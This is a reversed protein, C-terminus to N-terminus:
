SESSVIRDPFGFEAKALILEDVFAVFEEAHYQDAIQAKKLVSHKVHFLTRKLVYRSYQINSDMPSSPPWRCQVGSSGGQKSDAIRLCGWEAEFVGHSKLLVFSYSTPLTAKNPKIPSGRM